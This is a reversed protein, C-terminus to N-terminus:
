QHGLSTLLTARRGGGDTGRGAEEQGGRRQLRQAQGGQIQGDPEVLTYFGTVVDGTRTEHRSKVDGTHPGHVDYHFPYHVPEHQQREGDPYSQEPAAGTGLGHEQRSHLQYSSSSGGGGYSGRVYSPYSDDAVNRRGHQSCQSWTVMGTCSAYSYIVRM